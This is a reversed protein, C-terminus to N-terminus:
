YIPPSIVWIVVADVDGKNEWRFSEGRIRFSDGVQLDYEQEGIWLRLAGSVVYGVETTDRQQPQDLKAGPKFVSRLMEFEDSLNSITKSLM